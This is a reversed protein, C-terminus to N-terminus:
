LIGKLSVIIDDTFNFEVRHDYYYKALQKVSYISESMYHIEGNIICYAKAYVLNEFHNIDTDIVVAFQAYEGNSNAITKGDVLSVKAPNCEYNTYNMGDKSLAVGFVANSDEDIIDQYSETDLIAGFRLKVDTYTTNAKTVKGERKVYAVVDKRTSSDIKYCNFLINKSNFGLTNNEIESSVIQFIISGDENLTINWSTKEDLTPYLNLGTSSSANGLYQGNVILSYTGTTAGQGITVITTTLPDQIIGNEAELAVVGYNGSKKAGLTYNDNLAGIIIKSGIEIDELSDILEYYINDEEYYENEYNYKLSAKTSLREFETGADAKVRYINLDDITVYSLGSANYNRFTFGIRAKDYGGNASLIFEYNKASTTLSIEEGLEYSLGQDYSYLVRLKYGSGGGKAKFTIRSLNYIDEKMFFEAIQNSEKKVTLRMSQNGSIKGATSAVAQYGSWAVNTNHTYQKYYDNTTGNPTFGEEAEFGTSDVLYEETREVDDPLVSEPEENPTYTYSNQFAYAVYEPHDIFPNRNNQFQYVVNNRYIERDSVPDQYHWKLITSLKALKGNGVSNDTYDVDDVLALHLPYATTVDDVTQSITTDDYEGYRIMMYLLMRAVDGKVEDKPEFVKDNYRNGYSETYELETNVEGFDKNSKGINFIGEAARLHHCDTYAEVKEDNFGHSKPWTHERNWHLKIASATHSDNEISLGTYLCEVHGENYPDADTYSDITWAATYSNRIYNASIVDHLTERFEAESVTTDISDYYGTPINQKTCGLLFYSNSAYSNVNFLLLGLGILGIAFLIKKYKM